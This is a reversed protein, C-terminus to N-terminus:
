VCVIGLLLVVCCVECLVGVSLLLFFINVCICMM